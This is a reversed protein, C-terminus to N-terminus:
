AKSKYRSNLVPRHSKQYNKVIVLKAVYMYDKLKTMWLGEHLM